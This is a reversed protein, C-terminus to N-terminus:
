MGFPTGGSGDDPPENKKKAKTEASEKEARAIRRLESVKLDIDNKAHGARQYEGLMMPDRGGVIIRAIRLIENPGM